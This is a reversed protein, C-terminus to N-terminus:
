MHILQEVIANYEPTDRELDHLQAMLSTKRHINVEKATSTSRTPNKRKIYSVYTEYIFPYEVNEASAPENPQIRVKLKNNLTTRAITSLTQVATSVNAIALELETTDISQSKALELLTSMQLTGLRVSGDSNSKTM